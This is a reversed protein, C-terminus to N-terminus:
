TLNIPTQVANEARHADKTKAVLNEYSICSLLGKMTNKIEEQELKSRGMSIIAPNM